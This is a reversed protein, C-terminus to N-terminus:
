SCCSKTPHPSASCASRSQYPGHPSLMHVRFYRADDIYVKLALLIMYAALALFPKCLNSPPTSSYVKFVGCSVFIRPDEFHALALAWFTSLVFQTPHLNPRCIYINRVATNKTDLMQYRLYRSICTDGDDKAAVRLLTAAQM